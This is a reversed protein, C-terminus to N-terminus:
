WRSPAYIHLAATFLFHFISFIQMKKASWSGWSQSLNYVFLGYTCAKIQIMKNEKREKIISQGKKWGEELFDEDFLARTSSHLRFHKCINLKVTDSKACSSFLGLNVVGQSIVDSSSRLFEM